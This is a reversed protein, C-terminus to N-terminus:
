YIVAHRAHVKPGDHFSVIYAGAALGDLVGALSVPGVPQKNVLASLDAVCAGAASYVFLSAHGPNEISLNITGTYIRIPTPESRVTERKKGATVEGYPHIKISQWFQGGGYHTYDGYLWVINGNGATYGRPVYPRTNKKASNATIEEKDWTEGGDSTTWKEIEFQGSKVRSMVVVNPDNHDLTLGGSFGGEGGMSGGSAILEHNNWRSGDWRIYNYRHDEWTVYKVWVIVPYGNEDLAIDWVSASANGTNCDYLKEAESANVPIQDMTKIVSGDARHFAGDEYYM